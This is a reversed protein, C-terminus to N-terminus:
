DAFYEKRLWYEFLPDQIHPVDQDDFWVLEKKVLADKLRKVNASSSLKYRDIVSAASLRTEGDVIARLMRLQFDTLSYVNRLFGPKYISLMVGLSDTVLNPTIYGKAISDVLSFLHNVYRMNCRLLEATGSVVDRQLVKGYAQFASNVYDAIQTPEVRSPILRFISRWFYRKEDFIERLRNYQSGMFIFPCDTDRREIVRELHRLLLESDEPFLINQFERVQIILRTQRYSSLASPLEFVKAIDIEDPLWNLSVVCGSKDYQEQDFVFHTGQLFKEVIERYQSPSTACARIFGDAFQVLVDETTRVRSLDIDAVSFDSKHMRLRTLSEKVLSKCGIGPEGYVVIGEGTTLLNCILDIDKRRGVFARGTVPENYIFLTNM